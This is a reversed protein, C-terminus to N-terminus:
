LIFDERYECEDILSDIRQEDTGDNRISGETQMLCIINAINWRFKVCNRNNHIQFEGLAIRDTLRKRGNLQIKEDWNYSISLSHWGENCSKRISGDSNRRGFGIRDLNAFPFGWRNDLITVLPNWKINSVLLLYDCCFLNNWEEELIYLLDTGITNRILEQKEELELDDINDLVDDDLFHECWTEATMQGYNQPAVKGLKGLNTKVSLSVTEHSDYELIFDTQGNDPGAAEIPLPLPSDLWATEIAPVLRELLGEDYRGDYVDKLYEYVKPAQYEFIKGIAIEATIGATENNM